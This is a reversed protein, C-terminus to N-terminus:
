LPAQPRVLRLLLLLDGARLLASLEGGMRRALTRAIYLGLGASNTARSQDGTHFREFLRPIDEAELSPAPNRFAIEVWDGKATMSVSLAGGGHRLANATLNQFIRVLAREEALVIATEDITLEPTKGCASFDEYYLALVDYLIQAAPLPSFGDGGQGAEIRALELLSDLLERVVAIRSIVVALYRSRKEDSLGERSLMQLYGSASTLPTRLDHSIHTVADRLEQETRIAQARQQKQERLITNIEMALPAEARSNTIVELNTDNERIFRLQRRLDRLRLRSFLLSAALLVTAIGLLICFITVREAM